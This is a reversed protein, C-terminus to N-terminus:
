ASLVMTSWRVLLAIAMWVLMLCSIGGMVWALDLLGPKSKKKAYVALIVWPVMWLLTGVIKIIIDSMAGGQRTIL